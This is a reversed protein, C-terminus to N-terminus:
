GWEVMVRMGIHVADADVGILNSVLRAGPAGDLEVIVPVYTFDEVDPYPSRRCITFSYVIGTGALVPWAIAKSQCHPCFPSPPMRFTGCDTCQASTLTHVRAADWFPQTWVDMAISIHGGPI